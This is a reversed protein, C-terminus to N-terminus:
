SIFGSGTGSQAGWIGRARVQARVRAVATPFRRSVAQAMARDLKQLKIIEM